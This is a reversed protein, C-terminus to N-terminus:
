EAYEPEARVGRRLEDAVERVAARSRLPGRVRWERYLPEDGAGVTEATVVWSRTFFISAAIAIPVEIVFLLLPLLLLILGTVVLVIVITAIIGGIGDGVSGMDIPMFDWGDTQM